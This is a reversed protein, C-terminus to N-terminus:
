GNETLMCTNDLQRRHPNAVRTIDVVMHEYVVVKRRCVIDQWAHSNWEIHTLSPVCAPPDRWDVEVTVEAYDETETFSLTKPNVPPQNSEEACLVNHTLTNKYYSYHMPAGYGTTGLDPLITVNQDYIILGPKDYHDHEGGYPTHNVVVARGHDPNRFITIGNDHGQLLTLSSQRFQVLLMRLFEGIRFILNISKLMVNGSATLRQLEM